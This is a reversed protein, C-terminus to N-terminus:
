LTGEWGRVMGSPGKTLVDPACAGADASLGVGPPVAGCTSGSAAHAACWVRRLRVKALAQQALELVCLYACTCCSM